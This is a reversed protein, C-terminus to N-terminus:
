QMHCAKAITRTEWIEIGAKKQNETPTDSDIAGALMSGDPSLAGSVSLLQPSLCTKGTKLDLAWLQGSSHGFVLDSHPDIAAFASTDYLATSKPLDALKVGPPMQGDSLRAAIFLHSDTGDGFLYLGSAIDVFAPWEYPTLKPLTKQLKWDKVSRLIVAASSVTMVASGDTSLVPSREGPFDAVHAGSVPDLVYSSVSAVILSNPNQTYILHSVGGQADVTNILRGEPIHWIKIIPQTLGAAAVFQNDASIAIPGVRILGTEIVCVVHQSPVDWVVLRGYDKGAALMKGDRSFVLSNIRTPTPDVRVFRRGEVYSYKGAEPPAPETVKFEVDHLKVSPSPFTRQAFLNGALMLCAGLQLAIFTRSMGGLYNRVKRKDVSLDLQLRPAEASLERVISTQPLSSRM